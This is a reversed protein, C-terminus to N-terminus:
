CPPDNRNDREAREKGEQYGQRYGAVGAAGIATIVALGVLIPVPGGAIFDLESDTLERIDADTLVPLAWSASRNDDLYVNAVMEM